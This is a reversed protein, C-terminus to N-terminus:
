ALGCIKKWYRTNNNYNIRNWLWKPLPKNGKVAEWTRCAQSVSAVYATVISNTDKNQIIIVGTKTLTIKATEDTTSQTTVVPRGWGITNEILSFRDEREVQAHYTMNTLDYSM